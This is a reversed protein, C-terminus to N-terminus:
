VTKLCNKLFCHPLDKVVGLLLNIDGLREKDLEDNVVCLEKITKCINSMKVYEDDNLKSKVDDILGMLQVVKEDVCLVEFSYNDLEDSM